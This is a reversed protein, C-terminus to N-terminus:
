ALRRAVRGLRRQRVECPAESILERRPFDHDVAHGRAPHEGVAAALPQGPLGPRPAYRHLLRKRVVGGVHGEAPVPLGLFYRRHDHEQCRRPRAVDCPLLDDDVTPEYSRQLGGATPPSPTLRSSIFRVARMSTSCQTASRGPSCTSTTPSVVVASIASTRASAARSPPPSTTSAIMSGRACCPLSGGFTSAAAISAESTISIATFCEMVCVVARFSALARPARATTRRLTVTSLM